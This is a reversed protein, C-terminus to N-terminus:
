NQSLLSLLTSNCKKTKSSHFYKVTIHGRRYTQGISLIFDDIRKEDMMMEHKMKKIRDDFWEAPFQQYMGEMHWGGGAFGSFYNRNVDNYIELASDLTVANSRYICDYKSYVEVVFSNSEM